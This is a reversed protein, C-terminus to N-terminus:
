QKVPGGLSSYGMNLPRLTERIKLLLLVRYQYGTHNFDASVFLLWTSSVQDQVQNVFWGMAVVRLAASTCKLIVALAPLRSSPIARM